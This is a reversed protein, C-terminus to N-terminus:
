TKWDVVTVAILEERNLHKPLSKLSLTYHDCVIAISELAGLAVLNERSRQHLRWFDCASEALREFDILDGARVWVMGSDRDVLAAGRVGRVGCLQQVYRDLASTTMM